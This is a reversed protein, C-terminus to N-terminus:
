PEAREVSTGRPWMPCHHIVRDFRVAVPEGHRTAPEFRWSRFMRGIASWIEPAVADPKLLEIEDVRGERTIVAGLICSGWIYAGSRVLDQLEESRPAAIRQPRLVDDGIQYPEGGTPPPEEPEDDIPPPVAPLDLVDEPSTPERVREERTAEIAGPPEDTGACGCALALALFVATDRRNM